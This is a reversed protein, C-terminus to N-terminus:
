AYPEFRRSDFHYCLFDGDEDIFGLVMDLPERFYPTSSDDSKAFVPQSLVEVVIAPEGYAPRRRNKLDPKWKVLQGPKFEHAKRLSEFREKLKPPFEGPPVAPQEQEVRDELFRRFRDLVETKDEGKEAERLASLLRRASLHGSSM